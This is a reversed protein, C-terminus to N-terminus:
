KARPGLRRDFKPPEPGLDVGLRRAVKFIQPLPADLKSAIQKASHKNRALKILEREKKMPWGGMLNEEGETGVCPYNKCRLDRCFSGAEMGDTLRATGAAKSLIFTHAGQIAIQTDAWIM